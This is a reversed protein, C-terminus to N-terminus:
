LPFDAVSGTDGSKQAYSTILEAKRSATISMTM